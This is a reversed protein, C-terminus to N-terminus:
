SKGTGAQKGQLRTVLPHLWMTNPKKRKGKNGKVKASKRNPLPPITPSSSGSTTSREDDITSQKSDGTMNSKGNSLPPAEHSEVDADHTTELAKESIPCSQQLQTALERTRAEAMIPLATRAIDNGVRAPLSSLVQNMEKPEIADQQYHNWEDRDISDPDPCAAPKGIKYALVLKAASIDGNFAKDYLVRFLHVMDEDSIATRFLDLMRACHRAHPNGPGGPNGKAFTGNRARGSSSASVGHQANTLTPQPELAPVSPSPKDRKVSKAKRPM